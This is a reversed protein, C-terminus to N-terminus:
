VEHEGFSEPHTEPTPTVPGEPTNQDQIKVVSTLMEATANPMEVDDVYTFETQVSDAFSKADKQGYKEFREGAKMALEGWHRAHRDNNDDGRTAYQRFKYDATTLITQLVNSFNKKTPLGVMQKLDDLPQTLASYVMRYVYPEHSALHDVYQAWDTRNLGGPSFFNTHYHSLVEVSIFMGFSSQILASLEDLEVKRIMMCEAAVRMVPHGILLDICEQHIKLLGGSARKFHVRALIGYGIRDLFAIDEDKPTNKVIRRRLGPSMHHKTTLDTGAQSIACEQPEPLSLDFFHKAIEESSLELLCLWELYKQYPTKV